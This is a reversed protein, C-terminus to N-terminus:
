SARGMARLASGAGDLPLLDFAYLFVGGRRDRSALASRLALFDTVGDGRAVVAEGDVAHRQRLRVVQGAPLGHISGGAM